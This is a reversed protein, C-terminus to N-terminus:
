NQVNFFHSEKTLVNGCKKCTCLEPTSFFKEFVPKFQTVINSLHFSEKHMLTTCKPCRWMLSDIEGAFRKREIVLGITGPPRQPSHPMGPTLLFIEGERIWQDKFYGGDKHGAEDIWLKLFIDGEVQYFFENSSNIHLDTRGNPGASVFVMFDADEFILKNSVPPKLLHRNEAIWKHLNIPPLQNM